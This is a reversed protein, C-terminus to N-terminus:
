AIYVLILAVYEDAAPIPFVSAFSATEVSRALYLVIKVM